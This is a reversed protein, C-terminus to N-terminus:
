KKEETKAKEDKAAAPAAGDKAAEGEESPAEPKASEIKSVDLSANATEMAKIEDETLARTAKVVLEDGSPKTITVGAPVPLDKVKVVTEFNKLTSLDVSINSVLDKPLCKVEVRQVTMVLTGGQEKIVPAEGVFKIEVTATLEKNMDIRRLDVHTIVDKVPDLQIEHILVKGAAKGDLQLDILSAEGASRYLKLFESPSVNISETAGGAGYVVAPLSGAVRAKFGKGVRKTAQLQFHM